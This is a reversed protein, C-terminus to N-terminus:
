RIARLRVNGSVTGIDLNRGGNGIRAQISRRNMRGNLTLPYDSDMQGSVTSMSVDADLNKPLELTVDGSVTKFSLDGRGTLVDIQVFIDGSVSHGYM